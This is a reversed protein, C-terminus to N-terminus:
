YNAHEKRQPPHLNMNTTDRKPLAAKFGKTVKKFMTRPILKNILLEYRINSVQEEATILM